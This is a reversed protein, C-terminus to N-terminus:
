RFARKPKALPAALASRGPSPDGMLAATLAAGSPQPQRGAPVLARAVPLPTRDDAVPARKPKPADREAKAASVADWAWKPLDVILSKTGGSNRAECRCGEPVIRCNPLREDHALRLRLPPTEGARVRGAVDQAEFAGGHSLRLRDRTKSVAVAFRWSTGGLELLLERKVLIVMRARASLGAFTMGIRLPESTSSAAVKVHPVLEDWDAADTM